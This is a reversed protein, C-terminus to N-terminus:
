KKLLKLSAKVENDIRNANEPDRPDLIAGSDKDRFILPVDLQLALVSLTNANVSFDEVDLKLDEEYKSGYTFPVTSGNATVTGEFIITYHDPTSFDAFEPNGSYQAVEADNFRHFKLHVKDYAANPIASTVTLEPGSGDVSLIVAGTKVKIESISDKQQLKLENIMLRVSSITISEVTDGAQPADSKWYFARNVTNSTMEAQMRFNNSDGTPEDDACGTALFSLGAAFVFLLSRLLYRM